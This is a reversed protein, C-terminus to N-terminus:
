FEATSQWVIHQDLFEAVPLLQIVTGFVYAYSLSLYKNLVSIFNDVAHIRTRVQCMIYAQVSRNCESVM